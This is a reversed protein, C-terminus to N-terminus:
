PSRWNERYNSFEEFSPEKGEFPDIAEAPAVVQESM